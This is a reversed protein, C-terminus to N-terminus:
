VNCVEVRRLSGCRGCAGNSVIGAVRRPAGGQAPLRLAAAVASVAARHQGCVEGHQRSERLGGAQGRSHSGLAADVQAGLRMAAASAGVAAASGPRSPMASGPRSPPPPMDGEVLGTPPAGIGSLDFKLTRAQVLMGM